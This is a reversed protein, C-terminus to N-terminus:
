ILYSHYVKLTWPHCHPFGSILNFIAFEGFPSSHIGLFGFLNFWPIHQDPSQVDNVTSTSPIHEVSVIIPNNNFIYALFYSFNLVLRQFLTKLLILASHFFNPNRVWYYGFIGCIQGLFLLLILVIQPM